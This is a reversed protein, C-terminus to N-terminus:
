KMGKPRTVSRVIPQESLSLIGHIALGQVLIAADELAVQPTVEFRGCIDNAVIEELLKSGDAANWIVTAVEDLTFVTSDRGSMIIMEDGLMRAAVDSSRAVYLKANM